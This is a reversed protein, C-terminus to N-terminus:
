SNARTNSFFLHSIRRGFRLSLPQAKPDKFTIHCQISTLLPRSTLISPPRRKDVRSRNYNTLLSVSSSTAATVGVKIRSNSRRFGGFLYDHKSFAKQLAEQLPRTEYKSHHVSEVVMSYGPINSGFRRAFSKACIQQFEHICQEVSWNM